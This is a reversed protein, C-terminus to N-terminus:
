IFYITLLLLKFVYHHTNYNKKTHAPGEGSRHLLNKSKKQPLPEHPRQHQWLVITKQTDQGIRETWSSTIVM